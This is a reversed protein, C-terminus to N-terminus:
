QSCGLGVTSLLRHSWWRCIHLTWVTGCFPGSGASISVTCTLCTSPSPSSASRAGPWPGQSPVSPLGHVPRAIEAVSVTQFPGPVGGANAGPRQTPGPERSGPLACTATPYPAPVMQSPESALHDTSGLCSYPYQCSDQNAPVPWAPWLRCVTRWLGALL